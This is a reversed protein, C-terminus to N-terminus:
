WCCNFFRSRCSRRADTLHSSFLLFLFSFLLSSLLLCSPLPFFVFSFLLFLSVVNEALDPPCHGGRWAGGIKRLTLRFNDAKVVPQDHIKNSWMMQWFTSTSPWMDLDAFFNSLIWIPFMHFNHPLFVHHITQIFPFYDPLWAQELREIALISELHAIRAMLQTREVQMQQLERELTQQQARAVDLKNSQNYAWREFVEWEELNYM